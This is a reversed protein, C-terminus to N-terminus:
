RCARSSSLRRATSATAAPSRKRHGRRRRMQQDAGAGVLPRHGINAPQLPQRGTDIGRPSRVLPIPRQPQEGPIQVTVPGRRPPAPSRATGRGGPAKVAAARTASAGPRRGTDGLLLEVASGPPARGARNGAAAACHGVALALQMAASQTESVLPGPAAATAPRHLLEDCLSSRQGAAFRAQDGTAAAFADGPAPQTVEVAIPQLSL